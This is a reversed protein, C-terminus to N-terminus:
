LRNGTVPVSVAVDVEGPGHVDGVDVHVLNDVDSMLLDNDIRVVVILWHQALAEVSRGLDGQVLYATVATMCATM